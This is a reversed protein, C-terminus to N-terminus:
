KIRRSREAEFSDKFNKEASQILTTIEEISKKAKAELLTTTEILKVTVTQIQENLDEQVRKVSGDMNEKVKNRPSGATLFSIGAGIITGAFVSVFVIVKTVSKKLTM